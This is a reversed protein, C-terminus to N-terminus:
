HVTVAPLASARMPDSAELLALVRHHEGPPAQEPEGGLARVLDGTQDALLAALAVLAAWARDDVTAM